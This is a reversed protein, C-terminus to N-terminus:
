DTVHPVTVAKLHNSISGGESTTGDLFLLHTEKKSHCILHQCVPLLLMQIMLLRKWFLFVPMMQSLIVTMIQTCKLKLLMMSLEEPLMSLPEPESPSKRLVAAMVATLQGM